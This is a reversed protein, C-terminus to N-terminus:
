DLGCAEIARTAEQGLLATQDEIDQADGGDEIVGAVDGSAV